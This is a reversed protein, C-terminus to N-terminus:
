SLAIVPSRQVQLIERLKYDVDAALSEAAETSVAQSLRLSQGIVQIVSPEIVSM